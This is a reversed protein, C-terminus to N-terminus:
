IGDAQTEDRIATTRQRLEAARHTVGRGTIGRTGSSWGARAKEGNLRRNVYDAHRKAPSMMMSRNERRNSEIIGRPRRSAVPMGRYHRGTEGRHRRGRRAPTSTDYRRTRRMAYKQSQEVMDYRDSTPPVPVPPIAAHVRGVM